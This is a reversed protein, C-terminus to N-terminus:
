LIYFNINWLLIFSKKKAKYTNWYEIQGANSSALTYCQTNLKESPSYPPTPQRLTLLRTEVKFLIYCSICLYLFLKLKGVMRKNKQPQDTMQLKRLPSKYLLANLIWSEVQPIHHIHLFLDHYSRRHHYLHPALPPRAVRTCQPRTPPRCSASALWQQQM